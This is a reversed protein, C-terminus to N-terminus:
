GGVKPYCLHKGLILRHMSREVVPEWLISKFKAGLPLGLYSASLSGIECGLISALIKIDFLKGVKYMESKSLNIKLGEEFMEFYM